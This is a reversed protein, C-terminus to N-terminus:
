ETFRVTGEQSAPLAQPCHRRTNVFDAGAPIFTVSM